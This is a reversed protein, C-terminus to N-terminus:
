LDGQNCLAQTTLIVAPHLTLHRLIRMSCAIIVFLINQLYLASLSLSVPVCEMNLVRNLCDPGCAPGGDRPLECHCVM